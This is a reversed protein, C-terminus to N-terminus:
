EMCEPRLWYQVNWFSTSKNPYNIALSIAAINKLAQATCRHLHDETNLALLYEQLSGLENVRNEAVFFLEALARHLPLVIGSKTMYHCLINEMHTFLQWLPKLLTFNCDRQASCQMIKLLLHIAKLRQDGTQRCAIGVQWEWIKALPLHPVVREESLMQKLIEFGTQFRGLHGATVTFKYGWETNSMDSTFRYYLTDGPLEFDNWKHPSGSFSHRDQQFDSSSSMLLEDCGEETNCQSDFKISLYIAGPIHVKDEFNTNNNYPHKSERMQAAMGPEEMFQCATLAMTGLMSESCGHLVKQLIKEWLQTEELQMLMNLIYTMHAPGSLDLIEENIAVDDPWDALLLVLVHRAYLVATAENVRYLYDRVAKKSRSDLEKHLLISSKTRRQKAYSLQLESETSTILKQAVPNTEETAKECLAPKSLFCIKTAEDLGELPDLKNQELDVPGAIPPEVDQDQEREELETDEREALSSIEKKSSYLMISLIELDRLLWTKSFGTGKSCKKVLLKLLGSQLFAAQIEKFGHIKLIRYLGKLALSLVWTAEVAEAYSSDMSTQLLHTSILVFHQLYQRLQTQSDSGEQGCKQILQYDKVTKRKRTKIDVVVARNKETFHKLIIVNHPENANDMYVSRTGMCLVEPFGVLVLLTFINTHKLQVPLQKICHDTFAAIVNHWQASSNLSRLIDAMSSAWDLGVRSDLCVAGLSFLLHTTKWGEPVAAGDGAAFLNHKASLVKAVAADVEAPMLRLILQGLFGLTLHYTENLHGANSIVVQFMLPLIQELNILSMTSGSKFPPLMAALLGLIRKQSCEAFVQEQSPILVKEAQKQASDEVLSGDTPSVNDEVSFDSDQRLVAKNAFVAKSESGQKGVKDEAPSQIENCTGGKGNCHIFSGTTPKEDRGKMAKDGTHSKPPGDTPPSVSVTDNESFSEGEPLMCLLASNKLGKGHQAKMLCDGILQICQHQVVRAHSLVQPDLKEGEVEGGNALDASYLTLAAFLLWSYNHIYPQILRQRDSIRITVMPYVTISHTPLHSNSYKKACYCGYCLDFDDCVNCNMRRGIIVGQCHDCAYEMNVMEHDDEHGEPKVGGLFCTKCLDMDNCQLCRYRHWPAIEDCGDCSIDVNLLDCYRAVFMHMKRQKEPDAQAIKEYWTEFTVDQCEYMWECNQKYDVLEDEENWQCIVSDHISINEQSTTMLLQPLQIEVFFSLDNPEWSMDLLHLLATQVCSLAPLLSRDNITSFGKVSNVLFLVLQYYSERIEKHLEAGCGELNGFYNTFDKQCALLELLFLVCPPHFCHPQGLSDLCQRITKLVEMIKQGQSKRLALVKLVSEHSLSQDKIFDLINKLIPYKAKVTPVTRPEEMSRFSLLRLRGRSFQSKRTPTCPPSSTDEQQSVASEVPKSHTASAAETQLSDPLQEMKTDSLTMQSGEKSVAPTVGNSSLSHAAQFDMDVFSGKRQCKDGVYHQIDDSDQAELSDSASDKTKARVPLFNLLLLSKQMCLKALTEPNVESAETSQKEEFDNGRGMLSKQKMELMWIRISDALSYVQAFEYSLPVKGGSNVYKQLKEYLDPTLYVLAAFTSNVAQDVTSGAVIDTKPTQKQCAQTFGKFLEAKEGSFGQAPDSKAFDILFNRCDDQHSSGAEKKDQHLRSSQGSGLLAEPCMQHRFVPKWLPSNLVATVKSPPLDAESGLERLSKLAMCRSALRGMLRCVLLQLDLGWSVAVDPLGYATVSFKYGWENNSSDSHFLFQLRPGAKFTVKQPWKDTGVKTDYRTKAGRADTFELYDYRRETECKEDFEVEFYTAGHCLFVSVEHCNNEYNHPSEMTWTRLVVPQEQQWSEVEMKHPESCLSKLPEILTSFGQLLTCYPIDLTCFDLLFIVLQRTAMAFVSNSIKEVITKGSYQSLLSQLITRINSLFQGVYNKLIEGALDKASNDSGKLQLYCWSLLSGQVSWFLFSMVTGSEQQAVDLMMMECERAAVLLLTDMVSLVESIDINESVGKEPLLLLGGPDQDSFHTCLSRFALHASQKHEQETINKMMTFLQHRRTQRDPFFIAAGGLLTNKVEEKLMKMPMFNSDGMDVVECLHKYLEKAAETHGSTKSQSTEQPKATKNDATLVSFCSQLLQLLLTQAFICEERPSQRLKNYFNWFLQLDLGTFDLFSKHKLGSEKQQVLDQALQQIFHLTKLLLTTGCVTDDDTKRCQLCNMSRSPEDRMPRLYGLVSLGQVGLREATEQRTCLFKIMLYQSIRCEQMQVDVEDWEEEVEFWGIPDDDGLDDRSCSSRTKLFQKFERLKWKDYSEFRKFHDEAHFKESASNYAFVLGCQAGIAGRRVKIRIQTVQFSSETGTSLIVSARTKGTETLFGDGTWPEVLLNEPGSKDEKGKVDCAQLTLRLPKGYKYLLNQRVVAMSTILSSAKYPTELHDTITCLSNIVKAVSGRALAFALLTLEVEPTTSCSTIRILFSDVEELVNPSLFSSFDTSGPTLSLPPMHQLAKQTNQLITHVFAPNTEMSATVLSTLLSWYWIASADCVSVDVKKVRQYGVARLGHIRTDCGDSLCRKINIQVYMQSINANELLTVYGTINSPIHVDRIEQLSSANRGVAVTVQQPMYSQDNAAVAISLHRLVVDPKMKLRIWHSRASGDSQWFSTTEGNTMKDIDASNSSTEIHTYCKTVSKLKDAEQNGNLDSPYEREKLLLRDLSDKLVSSRMTCINNFYDLVPYPIATNSIRNRHLFRLIMSAHLGLREKSESFIDIFGPVLSCAQLQRIVHSLEGHLNAGSSNKLAELMNEVDVTGDGEADFQAFAEESEGRSGAALRSVSEMMECFQELSVAEDGRSLREELWRVLISHHRSVLSEPLVAERLRATAERLRAQDLLVEAPPLPPAPRAATGSPFPAGPQPATAAGEMGEEAAGEEEDESSHSAATGM